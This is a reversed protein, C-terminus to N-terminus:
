ITTEREILNQIPGLEKRLKRVARFLISKVSGVDIELTSAIERLKLLADHRLTFIARELPTLAHMAQQIQERIERASLHREPGVDMSEPEFFSSQDLSIVEAGQGRKRDLATNVGIRYMWSKVSAEGRFTDLNRYVKIYVEQLVDEADQHSELMRVLLHFLGKRTEEVLERFAHRDGKRARKVLDILEAM